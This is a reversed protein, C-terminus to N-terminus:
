YIGEPLTSRSATVTSGGSTCKVKISTVDSGCKFVRTKNWPICNTESWVITNGSYMIVSVYNITTGFNNIAVNCNFGTSCKAIETWTNSNVAKKYYTAAARPEISATETENIFETATPEYEAAFAVVNSCLALSLITVMTVIKKFINKM